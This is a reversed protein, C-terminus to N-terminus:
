DLRAFRRLTWETGLLALLLVLLWWSRRFRIKQVLPEPALTHHEPNFLSALLATDNLQLPQGLDRLLNENQATVSLEANDSRTSFAIASTYSRHGAALSCAAVYSGTDLPPLVAHHLTRGTSIIQLTTDCVSTGTGTRITVSLSVAQLEPINAAPLILTFPVPAGATPSATPYVLLTDSQLERFTAAAADLLRLTFPFADAEGASHALPMFDWHWLGSFGCGILPHNDYVGRFILPITDRNVVASIWSATVSLKKAPRVAVVPPLEGTTLNYFPNRISPDTVLRGPIISDRAPASGPLAGIYVSLTRPSQPRATSGDFIFRIDTETAPRGATNRFDKRGALANRLFRIDLSPGPAAISYSFFEPVARRLLMRSYQVTDTPNTATVRYLHAGPPVRPLTISFRKRFPGRSVTQSDAGTTASGNSIVLVVRTDSLAIGSCSVSLTFTSDAPTVITDPATCTITGATRVKRLPLYRIAKASLEESVPATNSWNADSIVIMDTCSQLLPDRRIRPFFSSHDTTRYSSPTLGTRLSDGFFMWVPKRFPIRQNDTFSACIQAFAELVSDAAFLSMSQSADVLIPLARNQEPLRHVTLSPEFFAIIIATGFLIRLAAALITQWRKPYARRATAVALITGGALLAAIILHWITM